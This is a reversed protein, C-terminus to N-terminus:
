EEGKEGEGGAVGAAGAKGLLKLLRADLTDDAISAISGSHNLDLKDGYKKPQLKAARWQYAAIKVRDSAATEPKSADATELILDDMLDAQMERARACKTAFEDDDGMWRLITARHPMDDAECIRRLSKGDLLGEIIREAIESSYSSPRAM